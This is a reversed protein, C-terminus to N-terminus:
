ADVDDFISRHIQQNTQVLPDKYGDGGDPKINSRLSESKREIKDLASELVDVPLDRAELEQKFGHITQVLDSFHEDPDDEGNHNDFHEDVLDGLRPFLQKSAEELIGNLESTTLINMIKTSLFSSDPIEIALKRIQLAVREREAAELLGVENLRVLAHLMPDINMNSGIAEPSLFNPCCSIFKSLFLKDCRSAIFNLLLHREYQSYDSANGIRLLLKDYRSQPVIVQVGETGLDGCTVEYYINSLRAGALYIDILDISAAVELSFAESITPHKFRYFHNGGEITRVFLSGTLAALAELTAAPNSGMSLICQLEYASINVPASLRGGNIFLLALAARSGADLTRITERLQEVPRAIFDQIYMLSLHLRSTFFPDGLRRAIEPSFGSMDAIAHLSPKITTKYQRDQTGLRIHNYLIQEKESHSLEEVRIVVQSENIVPLASLKLVRKASQYIYDRSTFVFKAGGRISAQINPFAQNWASTSQWDFQTAGFADDVWFLQKPERPNRHKVFDDPGRVKITPCKMRDLAGLALMAAITSKGCAPEGLLLVFGQESLAKASRRYSETIVFKSLGDGLSSLIENAQAYAREDLIQGLDGLGYVRPVLMRLRPSERIFRSISEKGYASFSSIGGIELFESRVREESRGSLKANTFLFYNNALGISALRKAKTLEDKLDGIAMSKEASAFFKCQVTFSGAYVESGLTKWTGYFAGDRGGCEDAAITM